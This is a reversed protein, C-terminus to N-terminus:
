EDLYRGVVRWFDDTDISDLDWTGHREFLEHAASVADHDKISDGSGDVARLIYDRASADTYTKAMVKIGKSSISRAM